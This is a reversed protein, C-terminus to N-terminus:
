VTKKLTKRVTEHCISEVMRLEVLKDALLRLSRHDYGEPADSCAMAVLHAEAQGDLKRKQGSRPAENLARELGGEVFRNRVREVTPRSVGLAAMIQPDSFGEDVKLLIQARKRKRAKIEGKNTMDHLMQREDESLSHGNM